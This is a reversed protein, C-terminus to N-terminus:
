GFNVHLWERLVRKRIGKRAAVLQQEFHMLAFNREPQVRQISRARRGPEALYHSLEVHLGDVGLRWFQKLM